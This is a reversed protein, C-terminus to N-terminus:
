KTEVKRVIMFIDEDDKKMRYKERAFKELHARDSTLDTINKNNQEIENLYFEKDEKLKNLEQRYSYQSIFDNRDFFIMWIIFILVTLIYKNRLWGLVKELKKM